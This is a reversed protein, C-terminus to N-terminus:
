SRPAPRQISLAFAEQEYLGQAYAWLCSFRSLEPAVRPGPEGRTGYRVLTVWLRVDALTLRDGLLYRSRSLQRDLAAFAENVQNRAARGAPGGDGNARSPGHDVVPGLWGDLADIEDRLHPPYLELGTGSWERFETALDIEISPHHNTVVRATDRDWITPVTVAGAFDPDTIEYAERLAPRDGQPDLEKLSVPDVQSISVVDQLGTLAVVLTSRHSLPSSWEAYLHFRGPEAVFVEPPSDAMFARPAVLRGSFHYRPGARRPEAAPRTVAPRSQTQIV